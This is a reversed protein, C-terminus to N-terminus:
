QKTTCYGDQFMNTLPFSSMGYVTYSISFRLHELAGVLNPHVVEIYGVFFFYQCEVLSQASIVLSPGLSLSESPRATPNWIPGLRLLGASFFCIISMVFCWPLTTLSKKNRWIWITIYTIYIYIYKHDCITSDVHIHHFIRKLFRFLLPCHFGSSNGGFWPWLNYVRCTNKPQTNKTLVM